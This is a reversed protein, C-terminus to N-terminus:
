GTIRNFILSAIHALQEPTRSERSQISAPVSAIIRYSVGEFDFAIAVSTRNDEGALHGYIYSSHESSLTQIVIEPPTQYRTVFYTANRVWDMHDQTQWSPRNGVAVVETVVHWELGDVVGNHHLELLNRMIGIGGYVGTQRFEGGLYISRTHLVTRPTATLTETPTLTSTPTWFTATATAYADVTARANAQAVHTEDHLAERTQTAAENRVGQFSNISYLVVGIVILILCGIGTNREKQKQEAIDDESMRYEFVLRYREKTRVKRKQKLEWGQNVWQEVVKDMESPQGFSSQSSVEIHKFKIYPNSQERKKKDM